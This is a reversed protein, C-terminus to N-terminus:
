NARRGVPGATSTLWDRPPALKWWEVAPTMGPVGVRVPGPCSNDYALLRSEGVFYTHFDDVILNYATAEEAKGLLEVNVVDVGGGAAHLTMGPQLFKAMEWGQGAIWFRHGRTAEITENPLRIRVLRSPPRITTELVPRYTLEGTLPDQSLVFDGARVREIPLQGTRTWVPTGAPFCSRTRPVSDPLLEYAPVYIPAYYDVYRSDPPLDDELSLENYETWAQWYEQATALEERHAVGAIVEAVRENRREIQVNLAATADLSASAWDAAGESNGVSAAVATRAAQGRRGITPTAVIQFSSGRVLARDREFGEQTYMELVEVSGDAGRRVDIEAEIPAQLEDILRPVYETAPRRKLGRIAFARIEASPAELAYNLLDETAEIQPMDALAALLAKHLEIVFQRRDAKGLRALPGRSSRPAEYSIVQELAPIAEPDRISRIEVLAAARKLPEDSAERLMRRFKDVNEELKKEYRRRAEKERAIAKAPALGDRYSVLDLGRLVDADKSGAALARRWHYRAETTMAHRDCWAGLKCQADGDDGLSDRLAGYELLRADRRSEREAEALPKWLGNVKIEGRQWRALENRPDAAVAAALLEARRAADGAIEAELAQEVLAQAAVDAALNAPADKGGALPAPALVAGVVLAFAYSICNM